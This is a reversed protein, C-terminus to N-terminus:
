IRMGHSSAMSTMPSTRSWRRSRKAFPKSMNSKRMAVKAEAAIDDRWDASPFAPNLQRGNYKALETQFKAFGAGDLDSARKTWKLDATPM